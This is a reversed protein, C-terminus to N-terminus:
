ISQKPLPQMSTTDLIRTNSSCHPASVMLLAWITYYTFVVSAAVLMALGVIKDLQLIITNTLYFFLSPNGRYGLM